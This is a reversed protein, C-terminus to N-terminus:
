RLKSTQGNNHTELVDEASTDRRTNHLQLQDESLRHILFGKENHKGTVSHDLNSTQCPNTSGTSSSIGGSFGNSDPLPKSKNRRKRSEGVTHIDNSHIIYADHLSLSQAQM